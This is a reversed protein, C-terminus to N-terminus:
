LFDPMVRYTHLEDSMLNVANYILPRGTLLKAAVGILCGEYNHAHIIECRERRIVRVTEILMLFDWWLKALSPGVRTTRTARARGVRHLWAAGVSLNEGDPYTVVHVEHGRGSLTETLERIAAPSGYNVPFPCAALMAIRHPTM